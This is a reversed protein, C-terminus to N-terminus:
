LGYRPRKAAPPAPRAFENEKGSHGAQFHSRVRTVNAGSTEMIKQACRVGEHTADMWPTELIEQVSLREDAQTQLMKRILRLADRSMEQWCSALFKYQGTIIQKHVNGYDEAFPLSGSLMAFLMVGMSWVDVKSTYKTIQTNLVEPATYAPTGLLSKMVTGENVLKSLGFDTLKVLTWESKDRLLVNDPKIDRHTIGKVHLYNVAETVQYFIFRSQEETLHKDPSEIIRNLLDGGDMYELVLSAGGSNDKIIDITMIICVHKLRKLIKIENDTVENNVALQNGKVYKVAYPSMRRDFVKYVEGFAGSGLKSGVFYREQVNRPLDM